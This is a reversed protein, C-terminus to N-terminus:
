VSRIGDSEDWKKEEELTIYWNHQNTIIQLDPIQSAKVYFEELSRFVSLNEQYQEDSDTAFKPMSFTLALRTEHPANSITFLKVYEKDGWAIQAAGSMEDSWFFNALVIYVIMSTIVIQIFIFLFLFPSKRISHWFDLIAHKM